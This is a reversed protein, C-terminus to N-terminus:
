RIVWIISMIQKYEVPSKQKKMVTLSNSRSPAYSVVQFNNAERELVEFFRCLLYLKSLQTNKSLLNLHHSITFPLM